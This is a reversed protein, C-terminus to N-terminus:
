QGHKFGSLRLRVRLRRFHDASLGDQAILLSQQSADSQSRVQLFIIMPTIVSTGLIDIRQFDQSEQAIEWGGLETYRLFYRSTEAYKHGFGWFFGLAGSLVVQYLSSLGSLWVAVIALIHLLHVLLRLSKSSQIDFIAQLSGTEQM